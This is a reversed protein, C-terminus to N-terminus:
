GLRLGGDVPIVAGNVYAAADSLLWAVVDAVEEPAGIRQVPVTAALRPADSGLKAHWADTGVYGPAIANVRVGRPGAEQAAVEALMVAAAKAAAYAGLMPRGRLGGLASNVVIAGRGRPLMHALLERLAHFVGLANLDFAARVAVPDAEHLPGAGLIKGANVFAADVGGFRVATEAVVARVDELRTMDCAAAEATGGAAWLEAAVAECADLRRSAVMVRMGLAALRTATARGIGSSGGIVLVSRGALGHGTSAAEARGAGTM